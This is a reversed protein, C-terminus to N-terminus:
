RRAPLHELIRTLAEDIRAEMWSQSDVVGDISGEAWGRWVVKKSRPDVLDVMLTGQDYVHSGCDGNACAYPTDLDRANIEQGVSAHYHLQVDPESSATKEYGRRQLEQEVRARVREDFFRNNDLRPDGTSWTDAPGWNFTRYARLDVDREVYTHISMPACAIAAFAVLLGLATLTRRLVPAHM